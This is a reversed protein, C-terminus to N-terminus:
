SRETLNNLWTGKKYFYLSIFVKILGMGEVLVYLALFSLPIIRSFVTSVLVPGVWTYIGDIILVSKTDGGSRLIYYATNAYSQTWSLLGKVIILNRAMTVNAPSLSFIQPAFFSSALIIVNGAGLILLATQLMKEGNEKALELNGAGLENGIYVGAVVGCGSFAVYALHSVNDAVTIAPVYRENIFCYNLFLINIGISWIIENCMLPFTKGLVHKKQSLDLAPHRGRLSLSNDKRLLLWILTLMEAIRALLTAIAAGAIGLRPFGLNGMILLYNFVINTIFSIFGTKLPVSPQGIVRFAVSAMSIFAFPVYTFRIYKIYELGLEIVNADKIFLSMTIEPYVLMFGTVLVAIACGTKIGFRFVQQCSTHEKAGYYQAIFIGVGNTLGFITLSYVFFFKNAVSVASLAQEGAVGIMLNDTISILNTLLQQCIVPLSLKFYGKIFSRDQLLTKMIHRKEFPACQM